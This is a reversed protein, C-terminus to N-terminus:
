ARKLALPVQSDTTLYLVEELNDKINSVEELIQGMMKDLKCCIGGDENDDYTSRVHKNNTRILKM